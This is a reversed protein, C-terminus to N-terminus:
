RQWAKRDIFEAWKAPTTFRTEADGGPNPLLCVEYIFDALASCVFSAPLKEGNYERIWEPSIGLSELAFHLYASYDYKSGLLEELLACIKGRQEDTKPQEHNSLGFGKDWSSIDRWGIGGPAAEIAWKRGAADEHHYVAIHGYHGYKKTRMTVVSFVWETREAWKNGLKVAIVDGPRLQGVDLV